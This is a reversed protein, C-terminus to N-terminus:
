QVAGTLEKSLRRYFIERVEYDLEGVNEKAVKGVM